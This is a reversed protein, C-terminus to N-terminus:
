FHGNVRLCVILVIALLDFNQLGTLKLYFYTRNLFLLVLLILITLNPFDGPPERIRIQGYLNSHFIVWLYEFYTYYTYILFSFWSFCTYFILYGGVYGQLIWFTGLRCFWKMRSCLGLLSAKQFFLAVCFLTEFNDKLHFDLRFFGFIYKGTDYRLFPWAPHNKICFLFM